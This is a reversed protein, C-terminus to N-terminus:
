ERRRRFLQPVLNQPLTHRMPLLATASLDLLIRARVPMQRHALRCALLKTISTALMAVGSLSLLTLVVRRFALPSLGVYVRAGILSPVLLAAAVMAMTPLLAQEVTGTAVYAAMTAALAALNFTQIISRQQTKEMGRLTCWLTPAAGSFGGLGGLFGGLSGAAADAWRGGVTVTPLQHAFLMVPCWAVLLVGFVLKFWVPDLHPLLAVGIPVGVAGGALFPALDSWGLTRKVSFAAVIQGTLSGAVALVAASQPEIGWVWFSMAVMSFGFGSLGQVFGAVVAGTLLLLQDPSM